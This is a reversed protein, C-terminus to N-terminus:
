FVIAGLSPLYPFTAIGDCNLSACPSNEVPKEVTKTFKKLAENLGPLEVRRSLKPQRKM